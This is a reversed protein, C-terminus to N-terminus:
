GANPMGSIAAFLGLGIFLGGTLYRSFRRFGRARLLAPAVAGAAIAYGTDTVAAIAVFITGLTIGQIAAPADAAMFQALFAAFFLATKPNLM